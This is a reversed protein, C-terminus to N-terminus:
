KLDEFNIAEIEAIAKAAIEKAKNYMKISVPNHMAQPWRHLILFNVIGQEYSDEYAM